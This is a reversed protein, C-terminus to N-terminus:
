KKEKQKKKQEKAKEEKASEKDEEKKVEKKNLEERRGKAEEPHSGEATVKEKQKSEKKKEKKSEESKEAEIKKEAKKEKKPAEEAVEVLKLPKKVTKGTGKIMVLAGKGGPVAGKVLILNQQPDVKIVELNKVTVRGGGMRGPMKMGKYVRSPTAAMGISGPARHFHSGHGGPGGAFGWRKVVGQFGKGKSVSTINTLEGVQFVECSMASGPQPVEEGKEVRYEAVYRTPKIKIKEFRGKIPKTLYKDKVEGYGIQIAEYGEKEITKIQTVYCPGAEIVTVPVLSDDAFIQTMGIKRGLLAKM